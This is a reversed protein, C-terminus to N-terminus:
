EGLPRGKLTACSPLTSELNNTYYINGYLFVKQLFTWLLSNRFSMAPPNADTPKVPISALSPNKTDLATAFSIGLNTFGSAGFGAGKGAFPKIKAFVDRGCRLGRIM